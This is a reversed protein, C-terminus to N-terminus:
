NNQKIFKAPVGGYISNITSFEKNLFSNASLVSGSPLSSNKGVTCNSAIWAGKALKIVGPSSMGFRYSGDIATHNGSIISVSPGILVEDEILIKGSGM